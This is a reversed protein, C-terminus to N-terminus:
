DLLIKEVVVFAERVIELQRAAAFVYLQITPVDILPPDREGVGTQLRVDSLPELRYSAIEAVVLHEEGVVAIAERIEVQRLVDLLEAPLVFDGAEEAHARTLAEMRNRQVVVREDTVNTVHAACIEPDIAAKKGELTLNEIVDLVAFLEDILGELAQDALLLQDRVAVVPEPRTHVRELLLLREVIHM